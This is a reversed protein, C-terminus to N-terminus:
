NQIELDANEHQAFTYSSRERRDIINPPPNHSFFAAAAAALGCVLHLLGFQLNSWGLAQLISTQHHFSGALIAACIMGHFINLRERGFGLAEALMAWIVILPVFGHLIYRVPSHYPYSLALIIMEISIVLFFFVFLSFDAPLKKLAKKKVWLVWLILFPILVALQGKIVFKFLDGYSYRSENWDSLGLGVVAFNESGLPNGGTVAATFAYIGFIEIIVLFLVGMKRRASRRKWSEGKLIWLFVPVPLLLALQRTAGALAAGALLPLVKGERLGLIMFGVGLIFGAETLMGPFALYFRFLYPNFIILFMSILRTSKSIDLKEFLCALLAVWCTLILFAAASFLFECPIGTIRSLFGLSWPFIFRQAHPFYLEKWESMPTQSLLWFNRVDFQGIQFSEEFSYYRNTLCVLLFLPGWLLFPAAGSKKIVERAAM